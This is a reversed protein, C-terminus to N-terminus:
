SRDRWCSRGPRTWWLDGQERVAAQFAGVVVGALGQDVGALSPVHDRRGPDARSRRASAPCTRAPATRRLSRSAPRHCGHRRRGALPGDAAAASHPGLPAPGPRFCVMWDGGDGGAGAGDRGGLVAAAGAPVAGGGREGDRGRPVWCRGCVRRRGTSSSRRSGGSCRRLRPWTGCGGPRSGSIGTVRWARWRGCCRWIGWPAVGGVAGSLDLLPLAAGAAAGVAAGCRLARCRAAEVGPGRSVLGGHGACGAGGVPVARGAARRATGLGRPSVGARDPRGAPGPRGM